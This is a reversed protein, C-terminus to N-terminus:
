ASGSRQQLFEQLQPMREQYWRRIQASQERRRPSLPFTEATGLIGRCSALWKLGWPTPLNSLQGIIEELWSQAASGAVQEPAEEMLARLLEPFVGAVGSIAGDCLGAQRSVAIAGDHGVLRCAYPARESVATLTETSGSSDKIGIVHPSGKFIELVTEPRLPTTFAPLNYLLIPVQLRRAVELSFAVLDDQEYPFFYPMSLLLADAGQTIAIEGLELSHALSGSGIGCLLQVKPGATVRVRALLTKVDSPSSCCCEGTAGNLVISSISRALLFEVWRDTAALDLRGDGDRPTGMAAALGRVLKRGSSGEQNVGPLTDGTLTTSSDM